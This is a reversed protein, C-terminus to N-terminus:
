SNWNSFSVDEPEEEEEEAEEAKSEEVASEEAQVEEVKVVASETQVPEPADAYVTPLFSSFFSSISSSMTRTGLHRNSIPTTGHKPCKRFPVTHIVAFPLYGVRSQAACVVCLIVLGESVSRWSSIRIDVRDQISGRSM